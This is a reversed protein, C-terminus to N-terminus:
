KILSLIEDILTKSEPVKKVLRDIDAKLSVIIEKLEEDIHTSDLYKKIKKVTKSIKNLLKFKQFINM